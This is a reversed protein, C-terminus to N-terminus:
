VNPDSAKLMGREALRPLRVGLEERKVCNPDSATHPSGFYFEVLELSSYMKRSGCIVDISRWFSPAQSIPDLTAITLRELGPLTRFTRLFLSLSWPAGIGDSAITLSRVHPM